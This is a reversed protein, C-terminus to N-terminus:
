SAERARQAEVKRIAHLVTTHDRGGFIKGIQPLSLDPRRCRVEYMAVMRAAAIPRMRSVGVIEAYPIGTDHSVHEIITRAPSRSAGASLDIIRYEQVAREEREARTAALNAAKFQEQALLRAEKDTAEKALAVRRAQERRKALVRRVFEPNYGPRYQHAAANESLM